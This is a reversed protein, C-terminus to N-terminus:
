YSLPYVKRKKPYYYGSLFLLTCKKPRIFEAVLYICEGWGVREGEVQLTPPGLLYNNQLSILIM